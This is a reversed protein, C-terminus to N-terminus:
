RLTRERFGKDIGLLVLAIVVFGLLVGGANIFAQAYGLTGVDIFPYMYDGLADGRLLVYGFYLIPYLTWLLVHNFRLRGRPVYLWWYVVFILPMVDHLLEDAVWQWGQPQWLHRLLLNYAIGVLAISAAIGGCVVPNRFFDHGRSQRHSLACTLAVAVLTNSLVTFFSFFRVLGGLLSAQDAWRAWFILYMQIALGSWGLCAAVLTYRRQGQTLQPHESHM